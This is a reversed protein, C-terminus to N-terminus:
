LSGETRWSHVWNTRRPSGPPNATTRVRAELYRLARSIRDDSLEPWAKRMRREAEERSYIFSGCLGIVAVRPGDDNEKRRFIRLSDIVTQVEAPLGNGKAERKRRLWNM